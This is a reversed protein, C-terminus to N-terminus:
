TKSSDKSPNEYFHSPWSGLFPSLHQFPDNYPCALGGKASLIPRVGLMEIIYVGLIFNEISEVASKAPSTLEEGKLV